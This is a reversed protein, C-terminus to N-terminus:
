KKKKKDVLEFLNKQEARMKDYIIKSMIQYDDNTNKKDYFDTFEFPKGIILKNRQFLRAKKYIMIPVIPRKARVAFIASGEKLEQLETTGTKNRTGEPFLLM